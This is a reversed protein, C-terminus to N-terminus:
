KEPDPALGVESPPALTTDFDEPVEVTSAAAIEKVKEQLREEKLKEFVKQKVKEDSSPAQPSRREELKIVHFGFQTEVIESVEGQKLGYAAKEFEPVMAGKGFFPMEGGQSKSGPDDSNEGALKAFDEGKRVRELIQQAKTKAEEKTLQKPKEAGDKGKPADDAMAEPRPPQTSILIHRVRLEEFDGAHESFYADVDQDTVSEDTKKKLDTMYANHLPQSRALLMQLRILEDQEFNEKIARAALIKLETFRRRLDERQPGQTQAARPDSKIFDDFETPHTSAYQAIEEDTAKVEPNKKRYENYLVVDRQLSTQSKIEPRDLYGEAEAKQAVALLEKIDTLLKKKEDPNNAIVRQQDPPLIKQYLLEIDRATLKVAKPASSSCQSYLGATSLVFAILIVIVVKGSVNM